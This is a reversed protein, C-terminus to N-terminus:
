EGRAMAEVLSIFRDGREEFDRFMDFSACGPALLVRDGPSAIQSARCVADELSPVVEVPVMEELIGRIQPASRGFLIASKLRGRVVEALPSFDLGKGLGGALLVIDKETAEIARIMAAPNTAKSDNIWEVGNIVAVRQLRHRLPRFSRLGKRIADLSIRFLLAAGIAFIANEVMLPDGLNIERPDIKEVVGGVGEIRIRVGDFFIEGGPSGLFHVTSRAVLCRRRLDEDGAPVLLHDEARQNMFIRMKAEIYDELRRYRDLHDPAVNLILAIHPRLTVIKELQFSSLELALIGDARDVPSDVAASLPTGLNGGEWSPRGSVATISGIMATVTSKRNTGTVAIIEAKLFRAAFEVESIVEAGSRAAILFHEVEPVGPSVVVIDARRFFYPDHGGLDLVVGEAELREVGEIRNRPKIDTASVEFGKRRALLAAAIGSRGLGVVHVRAGM